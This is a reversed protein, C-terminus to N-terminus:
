SMNQCVAENNNRIKFTLEYNVKHAMKTPKPAINYLINSLYFQSLINRLIKLLDNM